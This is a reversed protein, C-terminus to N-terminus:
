EHQEFCMSFTEQWNVTPLFNNLIISVIFPRM